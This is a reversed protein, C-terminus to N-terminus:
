LLSSYEQRVRNKYNEDSEDKGIHRDLVDILEDLFVDPILGLCGNVNILKIDFLDTGENYVIKVIGKFIFGNVSFQLGNEIAIPKHFGWSFLIIKQRTLCDMIYRTIM